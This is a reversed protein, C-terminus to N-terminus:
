SEQKKIEQYYLWQLNRIHLDQAFGGLSVRQKGTDEIDQAAIYELPNRRRM